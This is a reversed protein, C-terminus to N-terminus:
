GRIPLGVGPAQALEYVLKGEVNAAYALRARKTVDGDIRWSNADKVVSMKSRARWWSDIDTPLAFWISKRASLEQLYGLLEEYVSITDNQLLYDPHVIFSALGNKELILDIQTKWLDISRSNLIYFLMYDQVTTVPIELINGIFYPMVTCCGGKQPDLHAVNPISMDISFEFADFWDPNRYLMGARFARAGYERGYRNIVKARRLFEEKNDFLWGDHNLDQIVVEFGRDQMSKLFYPSVDYRGQPVVGFAAKVVFSDDVRMLAECYDRGATTEVDHTMAVCGSAGDPWFWVFPVREVGKAEMSMLLLTECVDEVTTDM